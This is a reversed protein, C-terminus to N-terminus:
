VGPVIEGGFEAAEDRLMEWMALGFSRFVHLRFEEDASKVIQVNLPGAM